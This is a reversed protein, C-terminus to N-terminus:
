CDFDAFSSGTYIYKRYVFALLMFWCTRLERFGERFKGESLSYHCVIGTLATTNGIWIRKVTLILISCELHLPHCFLERHSRPTNRYPLSVARIYILLHKLHSMIFQSNISPVSVFMKIFNLAPLQILREVIWLYTM